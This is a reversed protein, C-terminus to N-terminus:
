AADGMLQLQARAFTALCSALEGGSAPVEQSPPMRALLLEANHFARRAREMEDLRVLVCGLALHAPVLTRDLYVARGAAGAAEHHLGAENLLLSNLYHLEACLPALELAAACLVGAETFQGADALRRVEDLADALPPEGSSPGHKARASDDRAPAERPQPAALVSEPGTAAEAPSPRPLTTEWRAARRPLARARPRRYAVGAGTLVTECNLLAGLPPDAGGLLLWGSESLCDLLARAVRAVTRPSFYILVNRCLILDMEALESTSHAFRADALNLYRFTVSRRIAPLLEFRQGQRRFYTQVAQDPMGRLSWHTYQGQRARGLRRRVIDTGTVRSRGALGAERLLIALSYAEEGTACGASWVRLPADPRAQLLSPLVSERIFDFQAPDRFFYSEGVTLDAMVLDLLAEDATIADLGAGAATDAHAAMRRRISRALGAHRDPALALGAWEAVRELMADVLRPEVM